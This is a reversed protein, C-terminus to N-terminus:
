GRLARQGRRVKPFVRTDFFAVVPRALYSRAAPELILHSGIEAFAEAPSSISRMTPVRVPRMRLALSRNLRWEAAYDHETELRRLETDWTQLIAVDDPNEVSFLSRAGATTFGVARRFDAEASWHDIADVAHFCEHLLRQALLLYGPRGSHVDRAKPDELFRDYVNLAADGRRLEAAIASQPQSAFVGTTYRRLERAGHEQALRIVDRGDSHKEIDDVAASMLRIEEATWPKPVRLSCDTDGSGCEGTSFHFGKYGEADAHARIMAPAALCALVFFARCTWAM